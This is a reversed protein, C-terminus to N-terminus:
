RGSLQPVGGTRRAAATQRHTGSRERSRYARGYGGDVVTRSSASVSGNADPLPVEARMARVRRGGVAGDGDEGALDDDSDDMVHRRLGARMMASISLLRRPANTTPATAAAATSDLTSTSADRRAQAANYRDLHKSVGHTAWWSSKSDEDLWESVESVLGQEFDDKSLLFPILPLCMM